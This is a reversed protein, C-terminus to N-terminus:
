CVTFTFVTLTFSIDRVTREVKGCMEGTPLRYMVPLYGTPLDLYCGLRVRSKADRKQLHSLCGKVKYVTM